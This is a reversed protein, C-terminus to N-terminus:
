NRQRNHFISQCFCSLLSLTSEPESNLTYLRALYPLVPPLLKFCCTVTDVMLFSVATVAHIEANLM